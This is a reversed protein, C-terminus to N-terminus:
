RRELWEASSLTQTLETQQEVTWPFGTDEPFYQVELGLLTALKQYFRTHFTPKDFNPLAATWLHGQFLLGHRNRKMAAGGLKQGTPTWLVDYKAPQEQCRALGDNACSCDLALQCDVGMQQFTDAVTQHLERYLDTARQRYWAHGAAVILTYTFGGPHLVIGGGTPRRQVTWHAPLQNRIVSWNQFYGFTATSGEWEYHRYVAGAPPVHEMWLLDMAM